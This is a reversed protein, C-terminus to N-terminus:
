SSSNSKVFPRSERSNRGKARCQVSDRGQEQAGGRISSNWINSVDLWDDIRRAEEEMKAREDASKKAESATRKQEARELEGLRRRLATLESATNLPEQLEAAAAPLADTSTDGINELFQEAVTGVQLEDEQASVVSCLLTGLLFSALCSRGSWLAITAKILRHRLSFM